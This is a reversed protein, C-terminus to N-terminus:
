VSIEISILLNSDKSVVMISEDFVYVKAFGDVINITKFYKKPFALTTPVSWDTESVTIDWQGEGITVFNTGDKDFTTLYFVNIVDDSSALKKIKDFDDGSLEFSFNANDIDIIQNISDITIKTNMTTPDSGYLNQRLKSGAKLYLRDSFTMDGITDFYIEGSLEIDFSSIIQLTRFMQKSSKVIYNITDDFEGIDCFLENTKFIYNKFANVSNGNGVLTYILTNNQDIKFVVKDNLRSLDKLIDILKTLSDKKITFSLEKIKQEKTKAM